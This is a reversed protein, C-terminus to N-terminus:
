IGNKLSQQTKVHNLERIQNSPSVTLPSPSLKTLTQGLIQPPKKKSTTSAQGKPVQASANQNM